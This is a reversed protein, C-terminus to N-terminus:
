AVETVIHDFADDKHHGDLMEKVFVSPAYIDSLIYTHHRARTVAVYFLWREEVFLYPEEVPLVLQLLPDGEIQSPWGWRGDNVDLVIVFDAEQGKSSHATDYRFTVGPFRRTYEHLHAPCNHHYRGIFYVLAGAKVRRQIDELCSEIATANAEHEHQVLTIAPADTTVVAHITKKLQAPNKMIFTSTFDCINNNFRFTRDLAVVHAPAFQDHFQSTLTIDSGTFRFISQWDDGVCFLTADTRSRLLARLLHARAISIDQFEDVLIFRVPSRYRGSERHNVAESIMEHFDIEHTARLAQTYRRLVPEFVDLFAQARGGDKAAQAAHRLDAMEKGSSKFVTLFTAILMTLQHVSTHHDGQPGFVEELSRPQYVVGHAMLQRKLAEFVRGDRVLYSYTEILTTHHEQHTQRKWAIGEIYAAQDIFPPTRGQKDIAFHEIYLSYAPLYFDPRYRARTPTATDAQYDAEYEYTIGNLPLFNAIAVEEQSKVKEGLLTRTDVATLHRVYAAHSDFAEPLKYPQLHMALFDLVQYGYGHNEKSLQQVTELLYRSFGEPDEALRSLAPMRGTAQGIITRGLAHFTHSCIGPTGPLREGIREDTEQSAKHGFALILVEEPLAHGSAVLYGARGVIVSTKGSGAGALVLNCDENVVCALRQMPTLPQREVTDFFHQYQELERAVFADNLEKRTGEPDDLFAKLRDIAVRTDDDSYSRLLPSTLMDVMANLRPLWDNLQSQRCFYLFLQTLQGSLRQLDARHRTGAATLSTKIATSAIAIFHRAQARTLGRLTYTKEAVTVAITSWVRGEGLVPLDCLSLFSLPPSTRLGEVEFADEGLTFADIPNPCLLRGVWGPAIRPRSRERVSSVIM